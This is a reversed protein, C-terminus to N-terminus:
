WPILSMFPWKTYEYVSYKQFLHQSMDITESTDNDVSKGLEDLPMPETIYIKNKSIPVLEYKSETPNHIRERMGCNLLYLVYGTRKYEFQLTYESYSFYRYVTIDTNYDNTGKSPDFPHIKGKKWSESDTLEMPTVGFGVFQLTGAAFLVPVGGNEVDGGITMAFEEDVVTFLKKNLDRLGEWPLEDLRYFKITMSATQKPISPPNKYPDGATNAFYVGEGNTNPTGPLKDDESNREDRAQKATRTGYYTGIEAVEQANGGTSLSVSAGKEWPFKERTRGPEDSFDAFANSNSKYGYSVVVRYNGPQSDTVLKVEIGVVTPSVTYGNPLSTGSFLLDGFRPIEEHSLIASIREPENAYIAHNKMHVLFNRFSTIRGESDVGYSTGSAVDAYIVLNIDSM